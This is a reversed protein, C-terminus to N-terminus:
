TSDIKTFTRLFHGNELLSTLFAFDVQLLGMNNNSDLKATTFLMRVEKRQGNYSLLKCQQGGVHYFDKLFENCM